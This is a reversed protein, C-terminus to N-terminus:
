HRKSCPCLGAEGTGEPFSQLSEESPCCDGLLPITGQCVEHPDLVLTALQTEHLSQNMDRQQPCQALHAYTWQIGGQRMSPYVSTAM